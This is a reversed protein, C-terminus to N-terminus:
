QSFNTHFVLTCFKFLALCIFPPLYYYLSVYLSLSSLWSVCLEPHVDYFVFDSYKQSFLLLYCLRNGRRNRNKKKKGFNTGSFENILFTESWSISAANPFVCVAADMRICSLKGCFIITCSLENSVESLKWRRESHMGVRIDRWKLGDKFFFRISKNSGNTFLIFNCILSVSFISM